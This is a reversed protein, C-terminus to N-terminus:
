VSGGERYGSESCMCPTDSLTTPTHASVDTRPPFAVYRSLWSRLASEPVRDCWERGTLSPPLSPPLSVCQLCTIYIVPPPAHTHVVQRRLGQKRGTHYVRKPIVPPGSLSLCNCMRLGGRYSVCPPHIHRVECASNRAYLRGGQWGERDSACQTCTAYRVPMGKVAVGEIRINVGSNCYCDLPARAECVPNPPASPGPM